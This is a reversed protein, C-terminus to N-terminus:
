IFKKALSVCFPIEGSRNNTLDPHIEQIGDYWPEEMSTQKGNDNNSSGNVFVITPEIFESWQPFTKSFHRNFLFYPISKISDDSLEIKDEMKPAIKESSSEKDTAEAPNETDDGEDGDEDGNDDDDEEDDDGDEDDDDEDESRKDSLKNNLKKTTANDDQVVNNMELRKKEEELQRQQRIEAEVRARERDQERQSWFGYLSKQIIGESQTQFNETDVAAQRDTPSSKENSDVTSINSDALTVFSEDPRIRSVIRICPQLNSGSKGIPDLPVCSPPQEPIEMMRVLGSLPNTAHVTHLVEKNKSKKSKKTPTPSTTTEIATSDGDQKSTDSSLISIQEPIIDQKVLIVSRLTAEVEMPTDGFSFGFAEWNELETSAHFDHGFPFNEDDYEQKLIRYRCRSLFCRIACQIIM